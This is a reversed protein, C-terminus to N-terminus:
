FITEIVYGIMVYHIVQRINIWEKFAKPVEIDLIKCQNPLMFKLDWDGDTVFIYRDEAKLETELWKSFLMLVEDFTKGRDVMEQHFSIIPRRSFEIM